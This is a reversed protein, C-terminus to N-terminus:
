NSKASVIKYIDEATTSSRIDDGTLTVGYEEDVMAIIILAMMSSWEELERFNSDLQITSPDTEEFQSAFMELFEGQTM